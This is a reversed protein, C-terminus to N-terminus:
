PPYFITQFVPTGGVKSLALYFRNVNCYNHNELMKRDLHDIEGKTAIHLNEPLCPKDKEDSYGFVDFVDATTLRCFIGKEILRGCKTLAASGTILLSDVINELVPFVREIKHYRVVTKFVENENNKLDLDVYNPLKELITKDKIERLIKEVKLDKM